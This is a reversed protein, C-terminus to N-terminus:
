ALRSEELFCFDQINLQLTAESPAPPPTFVELSCRLAGQARTGKDAVGPLDLCGSPTLGAGAVVQDGPSSSRLPGFTAESSPSPDRRHWM